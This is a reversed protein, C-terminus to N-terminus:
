GTFADDFISPVPPQLRLTNTILAHTLYRGVLFAISIAQGPTFFEALADFADDPTGGNTALAQLTFRQAARQAPTMLAAREPAL